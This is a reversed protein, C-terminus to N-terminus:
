SGRRPVLLPAALPAIRAVLPGPGILEGDAQCERPPITDLTITTGRAFTMHRTDAFDKFALRGAVMVAQVLNPAEFLCLDLQGDTHSIGPGLEFVGDLISGINAIMAAICHEREIVQGDVEARVNFPKMKLISTSATAVYTLIGFRRRWELPAAAIMDSDVGTGAGIAFARGDALVGLDIRERTGHLLAPVARRVDLPIHLVRAILNGTGGPLIGVSRDTGMLAQVVEMATGDGGLTFILDYDNARERAVRAGHGRAETVLVDVHVGADVFAKRAPELM